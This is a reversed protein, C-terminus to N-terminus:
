EASSQPETVEARGAVYYRTRGLTIWRGPMIDVGNPLDALRVARLTEVGRVNTEVNPSRAQAQTRNVAVTTFTFLVAAARSTIQRAAQVAQPNRAAAAVSLRIVNAGHATTFAAAGGEAAVASGGVTAATGALELAAGATLVTAALLVGVIIFSATFEVGTVFAPSHRALEVIPMGTHGVQMMRDMRAREAMHGPRIVSNYFGESAVIVYQTGPEQEQAVRALEEFIKRRIRALSRDLESITVSTAVSQRANNLRAGTLSLYIEYYIVGADASQHTTKGTCLIEVSPVGDQTRRSQYPLHKPPVWFDASRREWPALVWQSQTDGWRNDDRMAACIANITDYRKGQQLRAERRGRSGAPKIEYITKATFDLIDPQLSNEVGRLQRWIENYLDGGHPGQRIGINGRNPDIERGHLVHHEPFTRSYLGELLVHAAEGDWRYQQRIVAGQPSREQSGPYRVRIWAPPRHFACDTM